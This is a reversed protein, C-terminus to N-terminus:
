DKLKLMREMLITKYFLNLLSEILIFNEIAVAEATKAM